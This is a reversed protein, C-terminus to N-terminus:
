IDFVQQLTPAIIQPLFINPRQSVYSGDASIMVNLPIIQTLVSVTIHSYSVAVSVSTKLDRSVACLVFLFECSWM